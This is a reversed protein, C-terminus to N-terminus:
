ERWDILQRLEEDHAIIIIIFPSSKVRKCMAFAPM